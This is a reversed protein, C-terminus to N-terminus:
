RTYIIKGEADHQIGLRHAEEDGVDAFSMTENFPHSAFPDPVIAPSLEPVPIKVGYFKDMHVAREKELATVRLMLWNSMEKLAKNAGTEAIVTARLKTIEDQLDQYARRNIWM